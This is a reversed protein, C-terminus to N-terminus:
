AATADLPNAGAGADGLQLTSFAAVHRGWRNGM